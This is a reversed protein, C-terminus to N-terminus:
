AAKRMPQVAVERALSEVASHVGNTFDGRRLSPLLDNAIIQAAEADTVQMELGSGVEIRVQRENPAVLLVLGDNRRADGIGWANALSRSYDEIPQGKLSPTSAVVMQVQTEKELRELRAALSAESAETWIGAVDVVRGTLPLAPEEGESQASCAALALALTILAAGHPM